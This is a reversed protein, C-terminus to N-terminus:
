KKGRFREVADLGGQVVLQGGVVLGITQIIVPDVTGTSALQAVGIAGLALIGVGAVIMKRLGVFKDTNM